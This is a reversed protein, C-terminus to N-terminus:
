GDLVAEDVEMDTPSGVPSGLLERAEEPDVGLTLMSEEMAETIAPPARPASTTRPMSDDRPPSRAAEAAQEAQKLTVVRVDQGETHSESPLGESGTQRQRQQWARHVNPDIPPQLSELIDWTTIPLEMREQCLNLVTTLQRALRQGSPSEGLWYLVRQIVAVWRESSVISSRFDRFKFGVRPCNPDDWVTAEMFPLDPPNPIRIEWRHCLALMLPLTKLIAAVEQAENRSWERRPLLSAMVRDECLQVSDPPEQQQLLTEITLGIWIDPSFILLDSEFDRRAIYDRPLSGHKDILERDAETLSFVPIEVALLAKTNDPRDCDLPRPTAFSDISKRRKQPSSTLACHGPPPPPLERRNSPTDWSCESSESDESTDSSSDSNRNGFKTRTSSRKKLATYYAPRQAEPSPTALDTTETSEGRSGRGSSGEHSSRRRPSSRNRSSDRSRDRKRM